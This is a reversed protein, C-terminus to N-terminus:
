STEFSVIPPKWSRGPIGSQTMMKKNFWFGAGVVIAGVILVIIVIMWTSLGDESKDCIKKPPELYKDLKSILKEDNQLTDPSFRSAIKEDIMIQVICDAVKESHGRKILAEKYKDYYQDL